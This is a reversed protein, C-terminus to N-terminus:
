IIALSLFIDTKTITCSKFLSLTAQICYSGSSWRISHKQKTRLTERKSSREFSIIVKPYRIILSAPILLSNYNKVICYGYPAPFGLCPKNWHLSWTIQILLSFIEYSAFFKILSLRSCFFPTKWNKQFILLGFPVNIQFELTIYLTNNKKFLINKSRVILIFLYFARSILTFLGFCLVPTLLDPNSPM